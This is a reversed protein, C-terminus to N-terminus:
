TGLALADVVIMRDPLDLELRYTGPALDDISFNGLEDVVTVIAPQAAPVLRIERGAFYDSDGADLVLLGDVSVRGRRADAGPGLTVTVNEARFTLTAMTGAGRMGGYALGPAPALIAAVLRRAKEGVSPAPAAEDALFARLTRLEDACRRCDAIHGAISWRQHNTVLGLEFEGLEQSTPCDFRDLIQRTAREIRAYARAEAACSPCSRVHEVVSAPAEGDVLAVLDESTVAGPHTCKM